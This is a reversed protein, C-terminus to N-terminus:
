QMMEQLVAFFGPLKEELVVPRGEFVFCHTSTAKCVIQGNCRMTYNLVLKLKSLEAVGLTVEIVDKFKTPKKYDCTIAVVPSIIGEEEMKDYGYGVQDLWDIRSEEMIRIYNSHHTVGMADTEYYKVEHRYTKIEM